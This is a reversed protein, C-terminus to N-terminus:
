QHFAALVPCVLEKLILFNRFNVLNPPKLIHSSLFTMTDWRRRHIVYFTVYFNFPIISCKTFFFPNIHCFKYVNCQLNHLIFIQLQVCLFIQDLFIAQTHLFLIKPGQKLKIILRISDHLYVLLHPIKHGQNQFQSLKNQLQEEADM